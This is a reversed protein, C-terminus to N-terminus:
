TEEGRRRVEARRGRIEAGITGETSRDGLPVHLAPLSRSFRRRFLRESADFRDADNAARNRPAAVPIWSRRSRRRAVELWASEVRGLDVWVRGPTKEATADAVSKM